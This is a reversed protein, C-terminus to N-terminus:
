QARKKLRLKLLSSLASDLLHRFKGSKGTHQSHALLAQDLPQDIPRYILNELM